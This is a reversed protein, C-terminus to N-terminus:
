HNISQTYAAITKKLEENEKLLERNRLDLEENDFMNNSFDRRIKESQALLYNFDQDKKVYTENMLLIENKLSNITNEFYDFDNRMNDNEVKYKNINKKMTENLNYSNELNINLQKIKEILVQNDHLLLHNDHELKEIIEHLENNEKKLIDITDFDNKVQQILKDNKNKSDLYIDDIEKQHLENINKLNDNNTKVLESVKSMHSKYLNTKDRRISTLEDKLNQIHNNYEDLKQELISDKEKIKEELIKAKEKLLGNEKNLLNIKIDKEKLSFDLLKNLQEELAKKTKINENSKEEAKKMENQFNIKLREINNELSNIKYQLAAKEKECVRKIENIYDKTYPFGDIYTNNYNLLNNNGLEFNENNVNRPITLCPRSSSKRDPTLSKYKQIIRQPANSFSSNVNKEKNTSFDNPPKNLSNCVNERLHSARNKHIIIDCRQCFNHFPQCTQCIVEVEEMQCRECKFGQQGDKESSM